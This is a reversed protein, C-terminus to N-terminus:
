KPESGGEFADLIDDPLPEFFSPPVKMGRDIGVPRPKEPLKAIPVLQAVPVNRRCLVVTEGQEVQELYRSLNAKADAVNVRIMTLYNVM